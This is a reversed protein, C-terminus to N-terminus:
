RNDIDTETYIIALCFSRTSFESYACFGINKYEM